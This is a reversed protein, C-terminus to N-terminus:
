ARALSRPCAGVASDKRSCSAPAIASALGLVPFTVFHRGVAFASPCLACVMSTARPNSSCTKGGFLISICPGQQLRHPQQAGEVDDSYADGGFAEVVPLLVTPVCREEKENCFMRLSVSGISGPCTLVSRAIKRRGESPQCVHTEGSIVRQALTCEFLKRSKSFPGSPGCPPGADKVGAPGARVPTKQCM